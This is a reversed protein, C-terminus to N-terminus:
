NTHITQKQRKNKVIVSRKMKHKKYKHSAKEFMPLISVLLDKFKETYFVNNDYKINKSFFKKNNALCDSSIYHNSKALWWLDLTFTNLAFYYVININTHNLSNLIQYVANQKNCGKSTIMFWSNNINSSVNINFDESLKTFLEHNYYLRKINSEYCLISLLHKYMIFNNFKQYDDTVQRPIYCHEQFRKTELYNSSIILDNKYSSALAFLTQMQVTHSLMAKEQSGLEKIFLQKKAAIDYVLAGGNCVLFGTKIKGIEVIYKYLVEFRSNSTFILVKNQEGFYRNIVGAKELSIMEHSIQDNDPDVDFIFVADTQKKTIDDLLAKATFVKPPKYTFVSGGGLTHNIDTLAHRKTRTKVKKSM